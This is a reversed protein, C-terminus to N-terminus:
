EVCSKLSTFVLIINVDFACSGQNSIDLSDVDVNTRMRVSPQNNRSSSDDNNEELKRKNRKSKIDVASSIACGIDANLPAAVIDPAAQVAFAQKQHNKSVDDIRFKITASGSDDIFRRSEPSIKFLEQQSVDLGSEYKLVLRLPVRRDTVLHGASNVLQIM